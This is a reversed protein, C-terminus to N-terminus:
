PKSSTTSKTASVVTLILYCLFGVYSCGVAVTSRRCFKPFYDCIAMWGTKDNGYKGVMGIATAASCASILLAAMILDHLFLCFYVAPHVTKRGAFFTSLLSLISFVFSVINALAFFKFASSYNYRAVEKFGIITSTEKATIILWAAALTAAIALARLIIQAAFYPKHIPFRPSDVSREEAM